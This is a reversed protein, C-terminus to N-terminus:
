PTGSKSVSHNVCQDVLIHVIGDSITKERFGVGEGGMMRGVGGQWVVKGETEGYAHEHNDALFARISGKENPFAKPLTRSLIDLNTPTMSLNPKVPDRNDDEDETDLTVPANALSLASALEVYLKERTQAVVRRLAIRDSKAPTLTPLGSQGRLANAIGVASVPDNLAPFLDRIQVPLQNGSSSNLKALSVLKDLAENGFSASYDNQFALVPAPVPDVTNHTDNSVVPELTYDADPLPRPRVIRIGIRSVRRGPRRVRTLKIQFTRSATLQQIAKNDVSTSLISPSPSANNTDGLFRSRPTSLSSQENEKTVFGSTVESNRLTVSNGTSAATDVACPPLIDSLPKVYLPAHHSVTTDRQTTGEPYEPGAPHFDPFWDETHYKQSIARFVSEPPTVNTEKHVAKGGDLIGYLKVIDTSWSGLLFWYLEWISRM